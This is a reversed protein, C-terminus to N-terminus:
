DELDYSDQPTLEKWLKMGAKGSDTLNRRNKSEFWWALAHQLGKQYGRLEWRMDPDPETQIEKSLTEIEILIQKRFTDLDIDTKWISKEKKKLKANAIRAALIHDGCNSFGEFKNEFDEPTFKFDTM